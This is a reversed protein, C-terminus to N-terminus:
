PVPVNPMVAAVKKSWPAAGIGVSVIVVADVFTVTVAAPPLLVVLVIGPFIGFAPNSKMGIAIPTIIM